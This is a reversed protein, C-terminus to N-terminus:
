QAHKGEVKSQGSELAKWNRQKGFEVGAKTQALNGSFDYEPTFSSFGQGSRSTDLWIQAHPQRMEKGRDM